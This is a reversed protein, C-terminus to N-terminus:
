RRLKIGSYKRPVTTKSPTRKLKKEISSLKDITQNNSEIISQNQEILKDLKKSLDGGGTGGGSVGKKTTEKLLEFFDNWSEILKDIKKPVRAIEDRLEDNSKIIENVMGQNSKVLDMVERMLSSASQGSSNSEGQELENVRRELKKLLSVPVVEYDDKSM